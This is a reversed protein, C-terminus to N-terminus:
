FTSQFIIHPVCLSIETAFTRKDKIRHNKQNGTRWVCWFAIDELATSTYFFADMCPECGLSYVFMLFMQCRVHYCKTLILTDNFNLWWSFKETYIFLRHISFFRSHKIVLRLIVVFVHKCMKKWRCLPCAILPHLHTTRQTHTSTFIAIQWMCMHFYKSTLIRIMHTSKWMKIEDGIQPLVPQKKPFKQWFCMLSKLPHCLCTSFDFYISIQKLFTERIGWQSIRRWAVNMSDVGYGICAISALNISIYKISVSM